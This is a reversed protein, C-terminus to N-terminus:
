LSLRGNQTEPGGMELPSDVGVLELLPDPARLTCSGSGLELVDLRIQRLARARCHVGGAPHGPKGAAPMEGLPLHEVRREVLDPLRRNREEDRRELPIAVRQAFLAGVGQDETRRNPSSPDADAKPVETVAACEDQNVANRREGNPSGERPEVGSLRPGPFGADYAGLEEPSAGEAPHVGAVGPLLDRAPLLRDRDALPGRTRDAADRTRSRSWGSPSCRSAWCSAWCGTSRACRRARM